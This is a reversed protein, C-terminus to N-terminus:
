IENIEIPQAFRIAMKPDHESKFRRYLGNIYGSFVDFQSKGLNFDLTRIEEGAGTTAQFPPGSPGGKENRHRAAPGMFGGHVAVSVAMRQATMIMMAM